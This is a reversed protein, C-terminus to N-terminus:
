VAPKAGSETLMHVALVFMAHSWTLPVVWATDGSSKDVQEPLLGLRTQHDLAWKFLREASEINGQSIRYHCLWLTTLIWPNGGIYHDNEYRKIGNVTEVTLLREITDATKEMRPDDAPLVGFPVSLGILSIDVIPDYFLEYRVYGKSTTCSRVPLSQAAAESYAEESVQLKLGRYFSQKEENWCSRLLSSRIAEAAADWKETLAKDGHHAAFAASAKLGGFVAAASYVHEATREEWLDKSPLPLGTEPDIFSLLFGAGAQVAPWMRAAFETNGTREFHQWMGWLLSAGEDIQLGWSPALRGDHYHRQQWSGDKDQASLSWDYFKESLSTLGSRDMATAIFAADRGWSYAYGGCRSFHEDFEPAAIVTGTQEDSMLKMTLLSREYLRRVAENDIPCPVTGALFSHWYSTTAELWNEIGKTKARALVEGAEERSHGAAIYVTIDSSGGPPLQINWSMAGDGAMDIENGNLQGELVKEWASGGAQFKTCVNSSGLMFFYERRFHALADRNEDFMTSNYLQNEAIRFSSYLVFESDIASESSTNTFAYHRVIFDEGPVAFTTLKVSVPYRESYSSVEIINTRDTYAADQKWGDEEDDFWTVAGGLRIGSRIVDVHQPFDINPWWMRYMRGNSGLSALFKSNGIVADIVYPKNEHNM